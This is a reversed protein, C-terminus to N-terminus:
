KYTVVVFVEWPSVDHSFQGRLVVDQLSVIHLLLYRM